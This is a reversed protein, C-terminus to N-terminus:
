AMRTEATPASEPWWLQVRAKWSPAGGSSSWRLSIERGAAMPRAQIPGAFVVVAAVKPRLIKGNEPWELGVWVERGGNKSGRFENGHDKEGSEDGNSLYSLFLNSRSNSRTEPGGCYGKSWPLPVSTNM